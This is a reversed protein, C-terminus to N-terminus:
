LIKKYGKHKVSDFGISEYFACAAKRETETILLIQCCGMKRGWEELETMLARGVGNGRSAANVIVNEAVVLPRCKGYLENCLIGTVSGTLAGGEYAGLLIYNEDGSIKDYLDEMKRIDSEENRFQKYLEALQSLDTKPITKIIANNM